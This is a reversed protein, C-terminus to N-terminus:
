AEVDRVVVGAALAKQNVAAALEEDEDILLAMKTSENFPLYSVENSAREEVVLGQLELAKVIRRGEHQEFVGLEITSRGALRQLTEQATM